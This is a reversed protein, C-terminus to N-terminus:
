VKRLNKKKNCILMGGEGTTINKTSYFSFCGADGFNGLHKNKYKSEIAHACDEILILKHKKVIKLIENM